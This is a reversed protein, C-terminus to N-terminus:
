RQRDQHVDAHPELPEHDDHGRQAAIEQRGTPAIKRGVSISMSISTPLKPNNKVNNRSNQRKRGITAMASTSTPAARCRRHLRRPLADRSVPGHQVPLKFSGMVAFGGVLRGFWTPARGSRRTRDLGLRQDSRRRVHRSARTDCSSAKVGNGTWPSSSAIPHRGVRSGQTTSHRGDVPPM